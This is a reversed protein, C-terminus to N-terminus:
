NSRTKRRPRRVVGANRLLEFLYRRRGPSPRCSLLALLTAVDGGARHADPNKIDHAAALDELSRVTFGTAPWGIWGRSCLETVRLPGYESDLRCGGFSM